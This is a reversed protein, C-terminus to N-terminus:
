DPEPAALEAATDPVQIEPEAMEQRIAHARMFDNMHLMAIHEHLVLLTLQKEAQPGGAKLTPHVAVPLRWLEAASGALPGEIAWTVYSIRHTVGALLDVWTRSTAAIEQWEGQRRGGIVLVKM